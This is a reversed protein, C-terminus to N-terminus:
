QTVKAGRLRSTYRVVKNKGTSKAEYMAEDAYRVLEEPSWGQKWRCYGLSITAGTELEVRERFLEAVEGADCSGDTILIVIEEGGYRGAIGIEEAIEIAIAAVQKLVQDGRQHGETDNLKKFNDIDGFIVSVEHGHRVYQQVRRLFFRRNYLGTLGDTIASKYIAQMLEVVREFLMQFLLLYFLVPMLREAIVIYTPVSDTFLYSHLLSALQEVFYLALAFRFKVSPGLKPAVYYFALLVLLFLFLELGIGQLLRIQAETGELVHPIRIHVMALCFTVFMLGWFYLTHRRNTSNYLQYFAYNILVFSVIKLVQSILDYTGFSIGGEPNLGILMIYHINIFVLSVTLYLFAKRRRHVLLKWSMYLMAMLIILVCSSSYISGPPGVLLDVVNM